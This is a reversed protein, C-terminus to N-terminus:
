VLCDVVVFYVFLNFLLGIYSVYVEINDMYVIKIEIVNWWFVIGDLRFFIVILLVYFFFEYFIDFLELFIYFIIYVLMVNFFLKVGWLLYLDGNFFSGM